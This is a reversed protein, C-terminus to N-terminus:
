KGIISSFLNSFFTGISRFFLRIWSAEEVDNAAVLDIGGKQFDAPQLYDAEVADAAQYMVKGIVQGKKVPATLDQVTVKPNFQGEEGVKTLVTVDSSPVAPVNLEVGKKVPVSEFGAVPTNAAQKKTLKFNSFGYDFLKKTEAFRKMETDAGMVVSILRMGDRQATGTFCYKAQETSGTKLGDAGPYEAPLGKLMWNYNAKKLENKQGPRFTLRPIQSYKLADPYDRILARALIAADRATMVNDNATDAPAYPGLESAPLGSSTLFHTSKMGLEQAKKNMEVVFNPESGGVTEALLVTADNASVIAMAQYLDGVTFEEGSNLYVGSSDSKKAIYFAYDSVKVKQDWKIKNEKIAEMVLYETMMKTMSAPPLPVDPNNQYLIKGTSAEVLIASKVALDLNAQPVAASATTATGAVMTTTLFAVALIAKGIKNKWRSM